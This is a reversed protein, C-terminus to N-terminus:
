LSQFKGYLEKIDEPSDYEPFLIKWLPIQLDILNLLTSIGACMTFFQSENFGNQICKEKIEEESMIYFDWATKRRDDDYVRKGDKICRAIDYAEKDDQNIYHFNSSCLVPLNMTEHLERLMVNAQALLANDAFSQPIIELFVNEKGFIEEYTNITQIIDEKTRGAQIMDWVPSEYGNVLSIINGKTESLQSLTQHPIWNKNSTHARSVNELLWLYGEHNKAILTSFRSKSYSKWQMTIQTALDVWIIPTLWEKKCLEYHTIANYMGNYDMIPAHTSWVEKLKSLIGKTSWIAELLSYQSHWHIHTFMICIHLLYHHELKCSPM